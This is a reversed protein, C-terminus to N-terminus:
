AKKYLMLGLIMGLFSCANLKVKFGISLTVIWLDICLPPDLGPVPISRSLVDHFSGEPIIAGLFIGLLHGLIGSVVLVLFGIRFHRKKEERIIM